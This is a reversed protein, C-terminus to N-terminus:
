SSAHIHRRLREMKKRYLAQELERLDASDMFDRYAYARYECFLDPEGALLVGQRMIEHRFLPDSDELRVLDVDASEFVQSLGEYCDWYAGTPCGLVAIDVDSEPRPPPAWTARSGYLIVLRLRIQAVVRQLRQRNCAPLERTTADTANMASM